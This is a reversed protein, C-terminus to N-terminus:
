SICANIELILMFAGAQAKFYLTIKPQSSISIKLIDSSCNAPHTEFITGFYLSKKKLSFLTKVIYKKDPFNETLQMPKIQIINLDKETEKECSVQRSINEIM